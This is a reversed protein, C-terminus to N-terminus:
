LTSGITGIYMAYCVTFSLPRNNHANAGTSSTNGTNGSITNGEAPHTHGPNLIEAVGRTMSIHPQMEVDDISHVLGDDYHSEIIAVDKEPHSWMIGGADDFGDGENGDAQGMYLSDRGNDFDSPLKVGAVFESGSGSERAIQIAHTHAGGTINISIGDGLGHSHQLLPVEEQVLKHTNAGVTLLGKNEGTITGQGTPYAQKTNALYGAISIRDIIANPTNYPAAKLTTVSQGQLIVWGAWNGSAGNVDVARGVGFADFESNAQGITENYFSYMKIEGLYGTAQLEITKELETITEQMVTTSAVATNFEEAKFQFEVNGGAKPQVAELFSLGNSIKIEMTNKVIFTSGTGGTRGVNSNIQRVSIGNYNEGSDDPADKDAYVLPLQHPQAVKAYGNQGKSSNRAYAESDLGLQVFGQGDTQATDNAEKMFGVSEFLWRFMRKSPKNKTSFKDYEPGDAGQFFDRSRRTYVQPM